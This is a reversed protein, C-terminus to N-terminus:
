EIRMARPIMEVVDTAVMGCDKELAVLDGARGNVFAAAAAARMATTRAYFSATIGALCDGTGGVTMGPNGTGNGRVTEGDSIIDVKGKVLVVLGNEKAYKKVPDMRSRYDPGPLIVGSIRQFEGAHPTVIGKLPLDPQLADADIVSKKCMPIIQALAEKTEPATGLGMGMLVVSHRSILNKLVPLDESVLLDGSLERVILDPSFGAVTKAASRPTAVTVIDAGARLAAMAAIAPAGTYAGGAIVLVRGSDGKHAYKSRTGVLSLDGPGTFFEAQPPIGIEAVVVNGELGPKPAHFTVTIDPKVTKDAGLGSPVDVSVIRKGSANIVDIASGELGRIPARVGTGFIADIILDFEGLDIESSDSVEKLDLDLEELIDWNRKAEETTIDRSRGLLYVRPDSNALHRACVLADGGNNGRGAVVAVKSGPYKFRIERALAAGANEMLQLPLLGFYQCNMDLARMEEASIIRM